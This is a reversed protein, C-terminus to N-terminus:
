HVASTVQVHGGRGSAIAHEVVPTLQDAVVAQGEGTLHSNVVFFLSEPKALRSFPDVLDVYIADESEAIQRIRKGFAFGDARVEAHPKLLAAEIRSPIAVLILPIGRVRFRAAMDKILVQLDAFRVNWDPSSPHQLYNGKDGYNLYVRIFRDTNQFLYHQAVLGSTSEDLLLSRIRQKLSPRKVLAPRGPLLSSLQDRDKLEQPNIKNKLDDLAISYIVADPELSMVESFRRYTDLPGLMRVGLNEVQVPRHLDRSLARGMRAGFTQDYPIFLGETTSSGLLVIRLTGPPKSGCPADTRYGCENFRETTWQGEFAKTTVLCNPRFRLGASSHVLCSDDEAKPWVMRSGLESASLIAFITSLSVLPLLIWDRSTTM